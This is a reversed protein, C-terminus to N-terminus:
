IIKRIPSGAFSVDFVKSNIDASPIPFVAQSLQAKKSSYSAPFLVDVIGAASHSTINVARIRQSQQWPTDKSYFIGTNSGRWLLKNSTREAWPIGPLSEVWQETPVALIDAHLATKSLSFVPKLHGDVHIEKGSTFGHLALNYPHACLDTQSSIGSIFTKGGPKSESDKKHPNRANSTYPCAM